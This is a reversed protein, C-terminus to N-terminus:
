HNLPLTTRSPSQGEDEVVLSLEDTDIDYLYGYINVQGPVGKSERM